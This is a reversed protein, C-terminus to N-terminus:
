MSLAKYIKESEETEIYLSFEGYYTFRPTLTKSTRHYIIVTGKSDKGINLSFYYPLSKIYDKQYIDIIYGGNPQLKVDYIMENRIDFSRAKYPHRNRYTKVVNSSNMPLCVSLVSDALNLYFPGDLYEPNQDFKSRELKEPKFYVSIDKVHIPSLEKSEINKEDQALLSIPLILLCFLLSILSKIEKKM